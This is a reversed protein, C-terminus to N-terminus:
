KWKTLYSLPLEFRATKNPDVVQCIKLDGALSLLHTAEGKTLDTYTEVIAVMNKTAAIGAEDITLKSSITSIKGERILFPLPWNQNKIVSVVVTVECPVEAGCVSVEGDGMAAHCDGLSLLAGPVNVPLYLDTGETIEKCDMNGGHSDPTGCSVPAGNPAVGIVGIMKNLPIAITDSFKLVDKEVPMIKITNETLEDGMVGVNPGTLMAANGKIDIKKISVLLTDGPEAGEIFVPGTAPNIRDWDLTDFGDTEKQLQNSFCDFTEFTIEEGDRVTLVPLNEKDMAFVCNEKKIVNM